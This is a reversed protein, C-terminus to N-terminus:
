GDSKGSRERVPMHNLEDLKDPNKALHYALLDSKESSQIDEMLDEHVEGAMSSMVRDFDAITRKGKSANLM